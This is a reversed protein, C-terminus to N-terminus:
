PAGRRGRHEDPADDRQRSWDPYRRQLDARNVARLLALESELTPPVHPPEPEKVIRM